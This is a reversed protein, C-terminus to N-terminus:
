IKCYEEIPLYVNNARAYSNIIEVEDDVEGKKIKKQLKYNIGLSHAM